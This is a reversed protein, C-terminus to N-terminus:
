PTLNPDVQFHSVFENLRGAIQDDPLDLPIATVYWPMQTGFDAHTPDPRYLLVNFVAIPPKTDNLINEVIAVTLTAPDGEIAEHQPKGQQKHIDIVVPDPVSCDPGPAVHPMLKLKLMASFVGLVRDRRVPEPYARYDNEIAKIFEPRDEPQYKLTEDACQAERDHCDLAIPYKNAPGDLLINVRKLDDFIPNAPKWMPKCAAHARHSWCATLIVFGLFLIITISKTKM